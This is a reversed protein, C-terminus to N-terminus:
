LKVYRYIFICILLHNEHSSICLFCNNKSFIYIYNKILIYLSCLLPLIGKDEIKSLSYNLFNAVISIKLKGM